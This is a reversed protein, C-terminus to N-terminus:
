VHDGQMNKNWRRYFAPSADDILDFAEEEMTVWEVKEITVQEEKLVRLIDRGSHCSLLNVLIRRLESSKDANFLQWLAEDILNPQGRHGSMTIRKRTRTAGNLDLVVKNLSEMHVSDWSPRKWQNQLKFDSEPLQGGFLCNEIAWVIQIDSCGDLISKFTPLTAMVSGELAELARRRLNPVDEATAAKRPSPTTVPEESACSSAVDSSSDSEISGSDTGGASDSVSTTTDSDQGDSDDYSNEDGSDEVDHSASGDWDSSDCESDSHHLRHTKSSEDRLGAWDQVQGHKPRHVLEGHSAVLPDESAGKRTRGSTEYNIHHDDSLESTKDNLNNMSVTPVTDRRKFKANSRKKHGHSSDSLCSNDNDISATKQAPESRRARKVLPRQLKSKTKHRSSGSRRESTKDTPSDESTQRYQNGHINSQNFLRDMDHHEELDDNAPYILDFCNLIQSRLSTCAWRRLNEVILRASMVGWPWTLNTVYICKMDQKLNSDYLRAKPQSEISVVRRTKATYDRYALWFRLEPGVCTFTAVPPIGVAKKYLLDPHSERYLSEQIKLAAAAANAAQRYCFTVDREPVKAHKVEVVAWPYCLLHRDHLDQARKATKLGTTPTNILGRKADDCM